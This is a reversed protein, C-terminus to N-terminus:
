PVISYTSPSISGFDCLFYFQQLNKLKFSNSFISGGNNSFCKKIKNSNSIFYFLEFYSMKGYQDKYFEASIMDVKVDYYLSFRIYLM